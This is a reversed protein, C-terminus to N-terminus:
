QGYSVRLALILETDLASALHGFDLWAGFVFMRRMSDWADGATSWAGSTPFGLVIAQFVIAEM